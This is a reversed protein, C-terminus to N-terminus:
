EYRLAVGPDVKTARRAPILCALFAVLTLLLAIGGFVKPDTVSVGYLLGKMLRTLALALALGTGVGVLVLRMGEGVFLRLVDSAQAGLALRVGIEHAREGVSYALIAYLGVVAILLAAIAFFGLLLVTLRKPGFSDAVLQDMLAVSSIPQEPDISAVARRIAPTLQGPELSSRVLVSINRTEEAHQATPLYFEQRVPADIVHVQKSDAVVGVVTIPLDDAAPITGELSRGYRTGLRIRQGIPDSDPWYLRAMTENIVAVRQSNADDQETLFRGRVLRIGAVRFYDPSVLRYNANARGHEAEALHGEVTIDRMSVDVGRYSLPLQSVAAAGEVGPLAEIQRLMERHFAELRTSGPYKSQPLSVGFSLVHDPKFGLDIAELRLYSEIMLAAGALVVFALALETVALANRMRGARRDGGAKRGAEKLVASLSVRTAQMAPALGFLTGTLLSLCAVAFVTQYNIRVLEPGATLWDPPILHVIVPLLWLSILLGVFGGAGSLLLSEALVQRALRLRSAGLAMRIAMEQRRATARALLLNAVNACSLLLLLGVAGLLILLAPRIGGIVAEKINWISLQMGVYEPTTAAYQRKLQASLERLRANAQAESVGPKLLAIVRFRRDGRRIDARDLQFPVWLTASWLEFTQPMVGIVTHQVGDLRLLRGVVAPDGAFRQQWFQYSIVVVQPGGPKDEEASYTRGLLPRVGTMAIANATARTGEIVEPYDGLTLRFTAGQIAGVDEFIERLEGFDNLEPVSFSHSFANQQPLSARLMVWRDAVPYPISHILCADVLSLLAASVGMGVALIMVIAASFVPKKRLIRFAYRVDQM